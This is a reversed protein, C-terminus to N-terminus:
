IYIYIYLAAAAVVVCIYLVCLKFFVNFFFKTGVSNGSNFFLMYPYPMSTGDVM